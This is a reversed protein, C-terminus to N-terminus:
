FLKRTKQRQGWLLLLASFFFIGAALWFPLHVNIALIFGSVLPGIVRGLSLISQNIGLILGQHQEDTAESLVGATVPRMPAFSLQFMVLFFSFWWLNFLFGALIISIMQLYLALELFKVKDPYRRLWWGIGYMQMFIQGLGLVMMLYALHEPTLNFRDTGVMQLVVMLMNTMSASLLNVVLLSLIMPQSLFRFIQTLNFRQKHASIQSASNLTEPLFALALFFAVLALFASFFFPIALGWRSLVGGIVPGILFSIGWTGGLIGFLKARKKPPYLDSIVAQAVSINGGTIGDLARALFLVWATPALAFLFLSMSTGLLSLALLPKRGFKDSLRGIIPTAILQFFAFTAFLVGVMQKSLGYKVAFPYLLPMIVSYSLANVLVVLVLVVITSNLNKFPLFKKM